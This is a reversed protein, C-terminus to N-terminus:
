FPITFETRCRESSARQSLSAIKKTQIKDMTQSEVFYQTESAPQAETVVYLFAGLRTPQATVSVTCM